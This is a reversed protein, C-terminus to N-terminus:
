DEQDDQDGKDIRLNYFPVGRDALFMSVQDIAFRDISIQDPDIEGAAVREAYIQGIGSLEFTLTVLDDRQRGAQSSNDNTM